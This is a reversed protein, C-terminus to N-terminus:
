DAVTLEQVKEAMTLTLDVQLASDTDITLGKRDQGHFGEADIKLDYRGVPLSPFSYFGKGDTMTKNSIGTAPNTASLAVNPIGGGSPDKITGSISGNTAACLIAPCASFALILLIRM